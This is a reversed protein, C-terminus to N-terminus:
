SFLRAKRKVMQPDCRWVCDEDDWILCDHIAQWLAQEITECSNERDTHLFNTHTQQQMEPGDYLGSIIDIDFDAKEALMNGALTYAHFFQDVADASNDRSAMWLDYSADLVIVYYPKKM